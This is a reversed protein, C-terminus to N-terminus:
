LCMYWRIANVMIMIGKELRSLLDFKRGKNFYSDIRTKERFINFPQFDDTVWEEPSCYERGLKKCQHTRMYANIHSEDHVCAIIGRNYDDRINKALKHIMELYEEVRGGNLGGMFYTYDKGYPKVYALSKKNREYPYFMPHQNQRKGPWVGMSLGSEDPLIEEGIPRLIKANSNFFFVYDNKKILEEAQLFMEFRFLSDEPFGACEKYIIRVNPKGIALTDDDTWVFYEKKADTLFYEECSAYFEKFFKNYRGTCIYLIAVKM